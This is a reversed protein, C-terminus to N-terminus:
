FLVCYVLAAHRQIQLIAVMKCSEVVTMTTMRVRGCAIGSAMTVILFNVQPNEKSEQILIPSQKAVRRVVPAGSNFWIMSAGYFLLIESFTLM